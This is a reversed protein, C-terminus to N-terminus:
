LAVAEVQDDPGRYNSTSPLQVALSCSSRPKFLAESTTGLFYKLSMSNSFAALSGLCNPLFARPPRARM